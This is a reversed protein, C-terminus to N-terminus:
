TKEERNRHGWTHPGSDKDDEQSLDYGMDILCHVIMSRLLSSRSCKSEEVARAFVDEVKESLNTIASGISKSCAKPEPPKFKAM